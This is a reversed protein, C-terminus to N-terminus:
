AVKFQMAVNRLKEGLVGLDHSATAVEESASASQESVDRINVISRNIQEAVVSQQLAAAAIQQNMLQINDVAKNITTIVKRAEEAMELSSNASEVSRNMAGVAGQAKVQLNKILGEIQGASEQTRTALARVEDAVVSFGRGADGARAAEIAANLALLNTQDAVTKIVDLVSGITDSQRQLESINEASASIDEVLGSIQKSTNQVIQQGRIAQKASDTAAVSADEASRAVDQVTATMEHMATAVQETEEKQQTVGVANTQSITSMEESAVALQEIGSTLNDILHRLNVIMKQISQMLVGIEDRRDTPLEKTLDGNAIDSVVSMIRELPAIILRTIIAVLLLALVVAFATAILIQMEVDDSEEQLRTVQLTVAQTGAADAARAAKLLTAEADSTNSTSTNSTSANSASSEVLQELLTHYDELREILLQMNAKTEETVLQQQTQKALDQAQTIIDVAKQGYQLDGRLLLNKEQQRAEAVFLNIKQVNNVLAFQETLKNLAQYGVISIAILLVLVFGFSSLLKGKMSINKTSQEISIM